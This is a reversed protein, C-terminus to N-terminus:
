SHHQAFAAITSSDIGGSLLVGLPVDSVLRIKVSDSLKQRLVSSAEAIPIKEPGKDFSLDWYRRTSIKGSQWVLTHAAPLKNIEKYISRPAPVYDYSLYQQLAKLDIEPDIKSHTLLVKLESAFYLDNGFVGYYLPKEGFRDRAIILKRQRLDWLAIAFMGNLHEVFEEGYEDYLHPVVETDGETKFTHGKEELKARITKFNYIEGNMVVVVSREENWVPQDGTKLDIISLRRMGLASGAGLWIGESDPGRHVMSNCMSRLIEEDGALPLSEPDSKAWGTIGCM